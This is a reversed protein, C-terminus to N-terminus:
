SCIVWWDFSTPQNFPYFLVLWDALCVFLFRFFLFWCTSGALFEDQSFTLTPFLTCISFLFSSSYSYEEKSILSSNLVRLFLCLCEINICTSETLLYLLWVWKPVLLCLSSPRFPSVPELVIIIHVETPVTVLPCIMWAPFRCLCIRSSRYFVYILQATVSCKTRYYCICMRIVM